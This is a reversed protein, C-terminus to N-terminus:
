GDAGIWFARQRAGPPPEHAVANPDQQQQRVEHSSSQQNKEPRALSNAARTSYFLPAPKGRRLLVICLASSPRIKPPIRPIKSPNVAHNVGAALGCIRPITSPDVNLPSIAPRSM